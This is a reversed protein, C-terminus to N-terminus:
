EKLTKKLDTFVKVHYLEHSSIRKLLKKLKPDDIERAAEDYKAAVEKEVTIDANLMSAPKASRDIDSYKIRPTGGRSVLKESLWGMHQMENVAQDEMAHRMKGNPALYSHLLYQLIVTYEHEIGWNLIETTKDKRKGRIDKMGAKEATKVFHQFDGHHSKEDSLIRELLRKIKPDDIATIHEEYMAIADEEALIDNKMWGKVGSGKMRMEGRMFSPVGGLEVVTEALFDLHRMEERAIAEIECALEGEGMSYAHILYQIIAAHEAEIDKNLLDIIATNKLNDEPLATQSDAL